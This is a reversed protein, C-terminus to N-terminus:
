MARAQWGSLGRNVPVAARGFLESADFFALRLVSLARVGRLKAVAPKSLFENKRESISRNKRTITDRGQPTNLHCGSGGSQLQGPNGARRLLM